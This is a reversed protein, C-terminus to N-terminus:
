SFSLNRFLVFGRRLFPKPSVGAADEVTRVGAEPSYRALIEDYLSVMYLVDYLSVMYLVDYLSVM